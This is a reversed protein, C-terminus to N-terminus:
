FGEGAPRSLTLEFGAERWGDIGDPYWYVQHFGLAIARKAANWSMWCHRECYFVLPRYNNGRTQAALQEEFYHQEERPLRGFGTNPLWLSTPLNRREPPFWLATPGLSKPKRPAPFVDILLTTTKLTLAKLASTNLVTAGRLTCPTPARFDALRYDAPEEAVCSVDASTTMSLLLGFLVSLTIALRSCDFWPMSHVIM